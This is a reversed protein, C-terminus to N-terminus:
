CLSNELKEKELIEAQLPELTKNDQIKPQDLGLARRVVWTGESSEKGQLCLSRGIHAAVSDSVVLPHLLGAVKARTKHLEISDGISAKVIITKIVKFIDNKRTNLNSLVDIGVNVIKEKLVDDLGTVYNVLEKLMNSLHSSCYITLDSEDIVKRIVSITIYREGLRSIYASFILPEHHLLVALSVVARTREDFGLNELVKYVVYSGIIEHRFRERNKRYAEVLKGVDHFLLAIEVPDVEIWLLRKISKIYYRKLYSWLALSRKIHTTYSEICVNEKFYACCTDQNM